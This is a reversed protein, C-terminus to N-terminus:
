SVERAARPHIQRGEREPTRSAHRRPHHPHVDHTGGHRQQIPHAARPFAALTVRNPTRPYSGGEIAAACRLFFAVMRFLNALNPLTTRLTVVVLAPHASAAPNVTTATPAVRRAGRM